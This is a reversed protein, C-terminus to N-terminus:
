AELANRRNTARRDDRRAEQRRSESRAPTMGDTMLGDFRQAMAYAEEITEPQQMGVQIRTQTKLNKTFLFVAEANTMDDADLLLHAFKTCYEQITGDHQVTQLAARAAHSRNVAAFQSIMADTFTKWDEFLTEPRKSRLESWVAAADVLRLKAYQAWSATPCGIITLYYAMAHIWTHLPLTSSPGGYRPPKEQKALEALTITIADPRRPPSSPPVDATRTGSDQTDHAENRPEASAERAHQADHRLRAIEAQAEKMKEEHEARARKLEAALVEAPLGKTSAPSPATDLPTTSAESMSQGAQKVEDPSTAAADEPEADCQKQSTKM